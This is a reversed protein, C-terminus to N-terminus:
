TYSVEINVPSNNNNYIGIYGYKQIDKITMTGIPKCTNSMSSNGNTEVSEGVITTINAQDSNSAYFFLLQASTSRNALYMTKVNPPTVFNTFSLPNLIQFISIKQPALINELYNLHYEVSSANNVLQTTNNDISVLKDKSIGGQIYENSLTQLIVDLNGGQELSYNTIPTGGGGGGGGNQILFCIAAYLDKVSKFDKVNYNPDIIEM